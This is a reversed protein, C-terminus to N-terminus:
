PGGFFGPDKFYILAPYTAVFAWVFNNLGMLFATGLHFLAGLGLVGWWAPAPLLMAIPFSCEWGIVGLPVARALVPHPAVFREYWPHGYANTALIGRLGVVAWVPSIAKAIGAVFYALCAQALLFALATVRARESGILGAAGTSICLIYTMQDAGDHGLPSRLFLLLYSAAVALCAAPRYSSEASLLLLLAGSLLRITVIGIVARKSLLPALARFIKVALPTRSSAVEWSFLGEDRLDDHRALLELASVIVGIAAIRQALTLAIGDASM